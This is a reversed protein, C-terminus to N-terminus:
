KLMLLVSFVIINHTYKIATGIAIRYFSFVTKLASYFLNNNKQRL